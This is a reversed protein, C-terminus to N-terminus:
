EGTGCQPESSPCLFGIPNWITSLSLDALSPLFSHSILLLPTIVNMESIISGHM